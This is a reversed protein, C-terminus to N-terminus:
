RGLPKMPPRISANLSLSSIKNKQDEVQTTLVELQKSMSETNYSPKQVKSQFHALIKKGLYNAIALSLCIIDSAPPSPETLVKILLGLISLNTISLNQQEDLIRLFQLPRNM